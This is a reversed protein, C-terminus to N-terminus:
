AGSAFNLVLVFNVWINLILTMGCLASIKPPTVKKRSSSVMIVYIGLPLSLFIGSLIFTNFVGTGYLVFLIAYLAIAGLSYIILSTKEGFIAPITKKSSIKDSETDPVETILIMLFMCIALPISPSLVGIDFDTAAQTVYGFYLCFTSYMFMVVVEGLGRYNIRLPPLSYEIGAFLGILTLALIILNGKLFVVLILSFIIALSSSIVTATVMQGKSIFGEPIVRSGGSFINFNRNIRDTEADAYDNAFATTILVFLTILEALIFHPMQFEGTRRSAIFTGVLVPLMGLIHLKLRAAKIWILIKM